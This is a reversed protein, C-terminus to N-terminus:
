SGMWINLGNSLAFGTEGRIIEPLEDNLVREIITDTEPPLAPGGRYFYIFLGALCLMIIAVVVTM